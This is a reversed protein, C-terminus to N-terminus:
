GGFRRLLPWGTAALALAILVAAVFLSLLPVPRLRFRRRPRPALAFRHGYQCGITRRGYGPPVTMRSGCIPCQIPASAVM